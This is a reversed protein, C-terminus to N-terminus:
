QACAPSERSNWMRLFRTIACVRSWERTRKEDWGVREFLLVTLDPERLLRLHTSAAIAAAVDALTNLAGHAGPEGGSIVATSAPEFIVVRTAPGAERLASSVGMALGATGVMACFVDIPRDMQELLERGIGRYGVM